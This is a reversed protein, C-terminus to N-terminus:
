PLLFIPYPVLFEGILSVDIHRRHRRHQMHRDNDLMTDPALGRWHSAGEQDSSHRARQGNSPPNLSAESKTEDGSDHQDIQRQLRASGDDALTLTLNTEGTDRTGTM